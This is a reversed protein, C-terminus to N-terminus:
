LLFPLKIKFDEGEPFNAHSLEATVTSSHSVDWKIRVALRENVGIEQPTDVVEIFFPIVKYSDTPYTLTKNISVVGTSALTTNTGDNNYKVVDVQYDSVFSTNGQNDSTFTLQGEIVGELYYKKKINFPYLFVTGTSTWITTSTTSADQSIYDETLMKHHSNLTSFDMIYDTIDLGYFTYYSREDDGVAM